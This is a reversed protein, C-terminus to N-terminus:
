CGIQQRVFDRAWRDAALVGDFDAQRHNQHQQLAREILHPIQDFRITESLFASVAEENAANLVAPATGGERLAEYALRLCAFKDFDPEQFTLQHWHSFDMRPFNNPLRDPYTLAYQIPLRMDPVGLQAKISGDVFEVMSHIISQPHILVRIRDVPMDFLWRAEIVELGKNMLTASDITIKRGMTWNPHNLAEAVTIKAFEDKPRQRFPGGSATLILTEIRDKSEGVLCQWLASHESDIPILLGGHKGAESTVLEGATVLTEKNALAVTHGQQLARLTAPLGAAGVIANVVIEVEAAAAIEALAAVGTLCEIGLARFRRLWDQEPPAQVVVVARPRFRQAQQYLLEVNGYTALYGVRFEDPHAEVVKLCNTGISGTSGLITLHKM